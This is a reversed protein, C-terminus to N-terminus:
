GGFALRFREIIGTATSRAEALMAEASQQIDRWSDGAADRLNRLARMIQRQRAQLMGLQARAEGRLERVRARADSEIKREARRVGRRIEGISKELNRVGKEIEGYAARAETTMVARVRAAAGARKPRKPSKTAGQKTKAKKTAM